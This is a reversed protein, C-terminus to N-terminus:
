SPYLHGIFHNICFYCPYQNQPYPPTCECLNVEPHPRPNGLLRPISARMTNQPIAKVLYHLRVLSHYSPLALLKPVLLLAATGIPFSLLALILFFLPLPLHNHKGRRFPTLPHCYPVVSCTSFLFTNPHYLPLISATNQPDSMIISSHTNLRERNSHQSPAFSPTM